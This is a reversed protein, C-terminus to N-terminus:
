LIGKNEPLSGYHPRSGLDFSANLHLILLIVWTEKEGLLKEYDNFLTMVKMRLHLTVLQNNSSNKICPHFESSQYAISMEFNMQTVTLKRSEPALWGAGRCSYTETRSRRMGKHSM